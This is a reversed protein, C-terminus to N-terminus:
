YCQNFCFFLGKRKDESKNAKPTEGCEDLKAMLSSTGPSDPPLLTNKSALIRQPIASIPSGVKSLYNLLLQIIQTFNPRANPDESWCSTVIDGLEEPLSEASPRVNQLVCIYTCFFSLCYHEYSDYLFSSLVVCKLLQQMHQKFIQCEKLLYSIIYYSGFFSLLAIHM